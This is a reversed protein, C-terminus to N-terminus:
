EDAKGKQILASGKSGVFARTNWAITQKIHKVDPSCKIVMQNGPCEDSGRPHGWYEIGDKQFNPRLVLKKGCFPCPLLDFM